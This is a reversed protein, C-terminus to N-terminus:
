RTCSESAHSLPASDVAEDRSMDAKAEYGSALQLLRVSADHDGAIAAPRRCRAAQELLFVACSARL